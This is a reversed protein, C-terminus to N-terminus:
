QSLTANNILLIASCSTLKAKQLLEGMTLDAPTSVASIGMERLIHALIPLYNKEM